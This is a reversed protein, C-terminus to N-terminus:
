NQRRNQEPFFEIKDCKECQCHNRIRPSLFGSEVAKGYKQCDIVRLEGEIEGLGWDANNRDSLQKSAELYRPNIYHIRIKKRNNGKGSTVVRSSPYLM